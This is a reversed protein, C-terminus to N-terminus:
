LLTWLVFFLSAAKVEDKWRGSRGVGVKLAEDWNRLLEHWKAPVGAHTILGATEAHALIGRAADQQDLANNLEILMQICGQLSLRNAEPDYEGSGLNTAPTNLTTPTITTPAVAPTTAGGAGGNFVGAGVGGNNGAGGGLGVTAASGAGAEIRSGGGGSAGAANAEAAAENELEMLNLFTRESIVLAEAISRVSNAASAMLEERVFLTGRKMFEM